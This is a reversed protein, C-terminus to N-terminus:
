FARSCRPRASAAASAARPHRPGAQQRWSTRSRPSDAAQLPMTCALLLYCATLLLYHSAFRLHTALKHVAQSLPLEEPPRARAPRSSRDLALSVRTLLLGAQARSSSPELGTAYRRTVWGRSRSCSPKRRHTLSYRTLLFTDCAVGLVSCLAVSKGRAAWAAAPDHM